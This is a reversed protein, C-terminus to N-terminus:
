VRSVICYVIVDVNIATFTVTVNKGSTSMSDYDYGPKSTYIDILYDGSKGNTVNNFTVSTSGATLTKTFMEKNQKTINKSEYTEGSEGGDIEEEIVSFTPYSNIGSSSIDWIYETIIAPSEIGYENAIQLKDGMFFDKGYVFVTETDCKSDFEKKIKVEELSNKGRTDLAKNYDIGSPLEEENIDSANVVMERRQLGTKDGVIRTRIAPYEGDGIVLAVNKYESTTEIYNSSIINGLDPAFRIWQNNEQNYSRDTGAYLSFQFKNDDTLIVKFGIKNSQCLDIIIDLLNNDSTFQNEMTLSTIREDTSKLFTFNDIKRSVGGFGSYNEPEIINQKLIKEVGDQLSGTIDTQNWIIRRDLISELGRGVIKIKSGTDIDTTITYDEIIMVHDTNEHCIYYGVKLYDLLEKQFPTIIEVTGCDYYRDVWTFSEYIDFPFIAEFKDNLIVIKM